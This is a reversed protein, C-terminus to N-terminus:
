SDKLTNKRLTVAKGNCPLAARAAAGRSSFWDSPAPPTVSTRAGGRGSRGRRGAGRAAGGCWCWAGGRMCSCGM